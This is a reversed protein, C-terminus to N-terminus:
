GAKRLALLGFYCKFIERDLLDSAEQTSLGAISGPLSFHFQVGNTPMNEDYARCVETALRPLGRAQMVGKEGLIFRYPAAGKTRLDFFISVECTSVECCNVPIGLLNARSLGINALITSPFPSDAM